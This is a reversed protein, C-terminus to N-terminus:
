NKGTDHNKINEIKEIIIAFKQDITEKDTKSNNLEVIRDKNNIVQNELSGYGIAFTVLGGFIGIFALVFSLFWNQMSKRMDKQACAIDDFKDNMYNIKSKLEEIANESM